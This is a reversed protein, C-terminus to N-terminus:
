VHSSSYSTTLFIRCQTDTASSAEIVRAANEVDGTALDAVANTFRGNASDWHVRDGVALAVGKKPALFEGHIWYIISSNAAAGGQAVLLMGNQVVVEGHVVASSHAFPLEQSCALYTMTAM